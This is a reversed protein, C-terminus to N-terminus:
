SETNADRNTASSPDITEIRRTASRSRQEEHDADIERAAISDSADRRGNGYKRTGDQFQGLDRKYEMTEKDYRDDEEEYCQPM